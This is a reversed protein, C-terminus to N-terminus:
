FKLAFNFTALKINDRDRVSMLLQPNYIPDSQNRPEGPFFLQTTLTSLNAAHVKVHIHRTRGPYVAPVITELYYRGEEDTFQHGRLRYGVLDYKGNSDAQWFDLLARTIPKCKSTFVQGTVIIKTGEMGSELLSTREPSSPVYYPGEVSTATLDDGDTCAPTPPMQASSSQAAPQKFTERSPTALMLSTLMVPCMGLFERRTPNIQLQKNM